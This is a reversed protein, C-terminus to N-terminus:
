KKTFAVKEGKNSIFVSKEGLGAEGLGAEGLGAYRWIMAFPLASQFHFTQWQQLTEERNPCPM